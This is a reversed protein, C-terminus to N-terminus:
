KTSTPMQKPLSLSNHNDFRILPNIQKSEVELFINIIEFLASIQASFEDQTQNELLQRFFNSTILNPQPRFAAIPQRVKIAANISSSFNFEKLVHRTNVRKSLDRLFEILHKSTMEDKRRSDIQQLASTVTWGYVMSVAFM